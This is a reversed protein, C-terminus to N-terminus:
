LAFQHRRQLEETLACLLGLDPRKRVADPTGCGINLGLVPREGHVALEQRLRERFAQGEATLRLEIPTGARAIDLAALAVFDKETYELPLDLGHSRAYSRMGPAAMRYLWRRVPVEAIGVTAARARRGLYWALISTRFGFPEFDIILEPKIDDALQRAEALLAKWPSGQHTRKDSFRFSALLHHRSILQSSASAPNKTLFWLHLRSEPFHHRLASWAASSRLLDGIGASHAKLMLINRPATKLGRRHNETLMVDHPGLEFHVTVLGGVDRSRFTWNMRANYNFGDNQKFRRLIRHLPQLGTM